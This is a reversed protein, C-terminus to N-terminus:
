NYSCTRVYPFFASYMVHYEQHDGGYDCWRVRYYTPFDHARNGREVPACGKYEHAQGEGPSYEYGPPTKVGNWYAATPYCGEFTDFHWDSDTHTLILKDFFFM